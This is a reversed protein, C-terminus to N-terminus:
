KNYFQHFLITEKESAPRTNDRPWKVRSNMITVTVNELDCSYVMGTRFTETHQVVQGIHYDNPCHKQDQYVIFGIYGFLAIMAICFYAFYKM